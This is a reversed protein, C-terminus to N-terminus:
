QTKTLEWIAIGAAVSVNFSEKQGVMPIELITDTLQLIESPVGHVEEGLVLVYKGDEEPKFVGLKVANEAQELSCVSAGKAKEERLFRELDPVYESEVMEEAGLATKHIQRRLKEQEHPLGKGLHPTYGSFIVKEVGLGECTRLIAGVNYTSRINHLIVTLSKM